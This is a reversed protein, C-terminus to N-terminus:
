KRFTVEYFELLSLSRCKNDIISKIAVELAAIEEKIVNKRYLIEETPDIYLEYNNIVYFFDIEEYKVPITSRLTSISMQNRIYDKIAVNKTNELEKENVNNEFNDHVRIYATESAEYTKKIAQAFANDEIEIKNYIDRLNKLRDKYEKGKDIDIRKLYYEYENRVNLPDM